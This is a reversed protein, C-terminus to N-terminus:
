EFSGERQSHRFVRRVRSDLRLWAHRGDTCGIARPAIRRPSAGALMGGAVLVRQKRAKPDDQQIIHLVDAM